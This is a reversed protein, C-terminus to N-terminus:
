AGFGIAVILLFVVIILARERWLLTVFDTPAYRARVVRMAVSPRPDYDVKTWTAMM